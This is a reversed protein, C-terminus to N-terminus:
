VKEQVHTSVVKNKGAKKAEYLLDDAMKILVNIDDSDYPYYSVGFSATVSNSMDQLNVVSTEIARRIIEVKNYVSICEEFGTLYLIIEEGGYRAIIDNKELWGQIINATNILVKDGFQHGFTDNVKKFDDIDIM